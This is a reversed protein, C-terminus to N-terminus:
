DSRDGPAAERRLNRILGVSAPGCAFASFANGALKTTTGHDPFIAESGGMQPPARMFSRDYGIMQMMEMGDLQRYLAVEQETQVDVEKWRMVYVGKTCITPVTTSWPNKTGKPGVLRCLSDNVDIYEVVKTDDSTTAFTPFALCAFVVCEYPRQEMHDLSGGFMGRCPPWDQNILGYYFLHDDKYKHEKKPESPSKAYCTRLETPLLYREISMTDGDRCSHAMTQLLSDAEDAFRRCGKQWALWYLRERRPCSGYTRAEIRYWRAVYGIGEFWTVIFDADCLGDDDRQLLDVQPM